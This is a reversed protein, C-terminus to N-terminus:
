ASNYPIIEHLVVIAADSLWGVKFYMIIGKHMLPLHIALSVFQRSPVKCTRLGSCLRIVISSQCHFSCIWLSVWPQGPPPQVLLFRPAVEPRHTLISVLVLFHYCYYLGGVTWGGLLVTLNTRYHPGQDGCLFCIDFYVMKLIKSGICVFIKKKKLESCISHSQLAPINPFCRMSEM